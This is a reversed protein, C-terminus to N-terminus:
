NSGPLIVKYLPINESQIHHYQFEKSVELKVLEKLGRNPLVYNWLQYNGTVNLVHFDRM